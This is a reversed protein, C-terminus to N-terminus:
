KICKEKLEAVSDKIWKEAVGFVHYSYYSYGFLVVTFIIILCILFTPWYPLRGPTIVCLFILTTCVFAIILARRWKISAQEAGAAKDIKNLLVECTDSKEPKTYSYAMGGGKKCEEETSNLNPCYIDKWEVRLFLLVIIILICYVVANEFEPTLKM